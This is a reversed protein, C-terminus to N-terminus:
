QNRLRRGLCLVSVFKVNGGAAFIVWHKDLVVIINIVDRRRGGSRVVVCHRRRSYFIECMDTRSM